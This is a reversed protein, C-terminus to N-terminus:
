WSYRRSFFGRSMGTLWGGAMWSCSNRPKARTSVLAQWLRDSGTASYRLLLSSSTRLEEGVGAHSM